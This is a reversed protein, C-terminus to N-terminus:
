TDDHLLIYLQRNIPICKKILTKQIWSLLVEFNNIHYKEWSSNESTTKFYVNLFSENLKRKVHLKFSYM